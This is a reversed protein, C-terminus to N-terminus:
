EESQVNPRSVTCLPQSTLSDDTLDALTTHSFAYEISALAEDLRRHLPCLEDRHADIDLPCERIRQVPEIASVLELVTTQEPPHTLTFGGHLGRQARVLGARALRQLVKALYGQPVQTHLAIQQRTQPTTTDSALLVAARLAYEVTRSIM